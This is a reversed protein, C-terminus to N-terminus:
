PKVPTDPPQGDYWAQISRQWGVDAMDPWLNKDFGPAGELRSRDVDLMFRKHETDLKLAGWPVAFLKEGVGMFGGFSLVAYSVLGTHVDLMIEKIDGLAEAERNFVDNGLLTGAGMLRPGPGHRPDPGARGPSATEHMARATRDQQGM